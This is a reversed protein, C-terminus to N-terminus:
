INEKKLIREQDRTIFFIMNLKLKNYQGSVYFDNKFLPFDRFGEFIWLNSTESKNRFSKSMPIINEIHSFYKSYKM